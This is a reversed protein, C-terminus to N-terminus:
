ISLLMMSIKKQFPIEADHHFKKSIEVIKQLNTLQPESLTRDKLRSLFEDLSM